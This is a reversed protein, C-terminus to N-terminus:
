RVVPIKAKTQVYHTDLTAAVEKATDQPNTSKIQFVNHNTIEVPSSGETSMQKGINNTMIADWLQQGFQPAGSVVSSVGGVVAAQNAEHERLWAQLNPFAGLYDSPRTSKTGLINEVGGALMSIVAGIAQFVQLKDAASQLADALHIIAETVVAIDKVIDTGHKSFFGAFAQEIRVELRNMQQNLNDLSKQANDSLVPIKNLNSEDFVGRRMQAITNLDLGFSQLAQNALEGNFRQAARTLDNFLKVPDRTRTDIGLLAAGSPMARGAELDAMVKQIAVVSQSFEHGTGGAIKAANNYRQLTQVSVGTIANLNQLETGSRASMAMMQELGYVMALIAAKAALGSSAVEGMGRETAELDKTVKDSGTIGLKVFLEAIAGM